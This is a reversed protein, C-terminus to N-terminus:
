MHLIQLLSFIHLSEILIFEKPRNFLSINDITTGASTEDQIVELPHIFPELEKSEVNLELVKYLADDLINGPAKVLPSDVGM